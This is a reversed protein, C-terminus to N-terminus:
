ISITINRGTPKYQILEIGVKELMWKSARWAFSDSKPVDRYVVRRCGSQIISKACENCPFLTVYVTSGTLDNNGRNLIANEEAHVVFPYKNEMPDPNDKGWPFEKDNIGRPTGNYGLSLIKNDKGVIVAGVQTSPDKSRLAIVSALGIFASDWTLITKDDTNPLLADLSEMISDIDTTTNTMEEKNEKSKQKNMMCSADNKPRICGFEM